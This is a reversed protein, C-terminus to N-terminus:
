VIWLEYNLSMATMDDQESRDAIKRRGAKQIIKKTKNAAGHNGDRETCKSIQGGM